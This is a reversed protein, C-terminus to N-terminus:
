SWLVKAMRKFISVIIFGLGLGALSHICPVLNAGSVLMSEGFRLLFEMLYELESM